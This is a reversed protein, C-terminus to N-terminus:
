IILQKKETWNDLNYHQIAEPIPESLIIYEGKKKIDKISLSLKNFRDSPM